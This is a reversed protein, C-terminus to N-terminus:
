FIRKPRIRIKKKALGQFSHTIIFFGQNYLEGASKDQLKEKIKTKLDKLSISGGVFWISDYNKENKIKFSIQSKKM